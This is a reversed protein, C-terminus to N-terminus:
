RHKGLEKVANDRDEGDGWLGELNYRDRAAATMIHVVVDSFDLIFWGGGLDDGRSLSRRKYVDRVQREIHSSLARLQTESNATCIVYWDTVSSRSGVELRLINQALKEDACKACFEALEGSAVKIKKEDAMPMERYLKLEDIYRRISEPLFMEKNIHVTEPSKAVDGRIKTSSIEFFEGSIIGAALRRATEEPWHRALVQASVPWGSRPYTLVEFRAVLEAARHWTHLELLSDAGILLQLPGALEAQLASMVEFSYSPRYALRQEIDSVCMGSEGAILRETMALRDAFPAARRGLKHPAAYAPVFCVTGTRGSALAGRAVGLHGAHPPDFSGGFFATRHASTNHM